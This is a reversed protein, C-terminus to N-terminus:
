GPKRFFMFVGLAGGHDTIESHFAAIGARHLLFALQSLNYFNMQMEPDAGAPPEPARRTRRPLQRTLTQYWRAPPAAPPPPVVGYTAHHVDWGFTIQIAGAGGPAIRRLLQEFLRLGRDVEIHQIVICSHVLDFEGGVASLEDDSLVLKVNGAGYHACNRQAEALMSPSVDVGVVEEAAAAFPIVVRGVGCGFDLVRRPAFASDLRARCAHLVYDAHHRGLAFFEDRAEATMAAARYKPDTLVSFYPDRAGWKEWEIDTSM